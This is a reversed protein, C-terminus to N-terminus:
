IVTRDVVTSTKGAKHRTLDQAHNAVGNSTSLEM